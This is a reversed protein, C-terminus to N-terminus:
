KSINIADRIEEYAGVKFIVVLSGDPKEHRIEQTPFIKRRRFYDAAKKNAEIVIEINREGGFWINASSEVVTCTRAEDKPLDSLLGRVNITVPHLTTKSSERTVFKVQLEAFAPM